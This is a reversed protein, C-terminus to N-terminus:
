RERELEGWKETPEGPKGCIGECVLVMFHVVNVKKIEAARAAKADAAGTTRSGKSESTLVWTIV